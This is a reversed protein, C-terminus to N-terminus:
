HTINQQTEYIVKVIFVCDKAFIKYIKNSCSHQVDVYQIFRCNELM